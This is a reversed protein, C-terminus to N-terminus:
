VPGAVVQSTAAPIHHGLVVLPRARTARAGSNEERGQSLTLVSRDSRVAVTSIPVVAAAAIALGSTRVATGRLHM